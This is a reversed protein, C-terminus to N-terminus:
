SRKKESRRLAKLGLIGQPHWLLVVVMILGIILLRYQYVSRFLETAFLLIAAGLISGPLSGIGGVIVMVIMLVSEGLNFNSPAIASLYVALFSGAIGAFATGIAFNLLKYFATNIGMASAALEDERIAIMARGIKSNALFALVAFTFVTLALGLYYFHFNSIIRFGFISPPPIGVIGMQGGTFSQWGQMLLRFIEGFGLTVLVLYDGRIRVVPLGLLFGVIFTVGWSIALVSFFNFGYRTMLIATVYSGIGYFAAHGFSLLGTFGVIFNLGLALISYILVMIVIRLIYENTIILPLFLSAVFFGAYILTGTRRTLPFGIEDAPLKEPLDKEEVFIKNSM